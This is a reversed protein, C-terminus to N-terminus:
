HYMGPPYHYLGGPGKGSILDGEGGGAILELDAEDIESADVPLVLYRTPGREEVAQLQIGGPLPAGFEEEAAANADALLRVRFEPDRQAREILRSELEERSTFGDTSM